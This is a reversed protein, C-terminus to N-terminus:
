RRLAAILGDKLRKILSPTFPGFLTKDAENLHAVPDGHKGFVYYDYLNSWVQRQAEPLDRVALMAHYMAEYPTAPQPAADMRWYNVAVNFPGPAHVQHWWGYPIFLGDGPVMDVVQMHPQADAFRPFRVLDPNEIDVMSVPVGGITRDFPGPYLNPLQDPAFLYVRREGAAAVLVNPNLDYHLRTVSANGTWIRGPVDPLIALPNAESLGPFHTALPISQVYVPTPPTRTQEELLRDLAQGIPAPGHRYNLSRTDMGYFYRGRMEPTGVYVGALEDNAYSRLYDALVDASQRAAAVLPWASAVGKLLVPVSGSTDFGQAEVESMEVVPVM